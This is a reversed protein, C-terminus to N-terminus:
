NRALAVAALSVASATWLEALADLQDALDGAQEAAALQYALRAQLPIAGTAIRAARAHARASREAGALLRRFAEAPEVAELKGAAGARIALADHRAILVAASRAAVGHGAFALLSAGISGDGWAATLDHPLGEAPVRSLPGAILYDPNTSAIRTRAADQALGASRVLPDVLLAEVHGLEAASVAQLATALAAINAPSGAYAAGHDRDLSLEQEAVALEAATRLMMVVAPAVTDAAADATAPAGLDTPSKGRYGTLFQTTARISDVAFAHYAWGRLAAEFAAVVALHGPLSSPRLAAIRDFMAATTADAPDLAALAAVAGDVDGAALKAVVAYTHNAGAAYVWAALMRGYAAPLKGARRLLEAHASRDQAIRVMRRVAPPLRGGQDLLLLPAWEGALRNRWAAYSADLGRVADPDLAMEAVPVPVPAPLPKRTLMRYADYITALEVAEARHDRALTVLDVAKGTVESRAFRMGSPYGLRTKGHAIAGLFQEPVGTVPGITGDGNVTGALTATPDIPEGIMTALFGAAILASAAVDDTPGAPVASFTVDGLDKGLTTAAVFAARWLSANWRAAGAADAGGVPVTGYLIPASPAPATTATSQGSQSNQAISATPGSSAGHPKAGSASPAPATTASSQGSQNNQGISATPGSSAGHPKTGPAGPANPGSSAAPPNASPGGNPGAPATPDGPNAGPPTPGSAPGPVGPDPANPATTLIVAVTDGSVQVTGGHKVFMADVVATHPTTPLPIVTSGNTEDTGLIVAQGPRKADARMALPEYHKTSGIFAVPRATGTPAGCGLASCLLLALASRRNDM